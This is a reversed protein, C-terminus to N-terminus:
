SMSIAASIGLLNRDPSLTNSVKYRSHILVVLIGGSKVGVTRTGRFNM